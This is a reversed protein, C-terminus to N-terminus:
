GLLKGKMEAPCRIFEASLLYTQGAVSNFVQAYLQEGPQFLGGKNPANYGVGVQQGLGFVSGAVNTWTWAPATGYTLTVSGYAPVVYLGLTPTITVGNVGVVVDVGGVISFYVPGGSINQYSSGSAGIVPTVAGFGPAGYSTMGDLLQRNTYGGNVDSPTSGRFLIYRGMDTTFDSGVVNARRLLWVDGQEPGAVGDSSGTSGLQITGGTGQATIPPLRASDIGRLQERTVSSFQKTMVDELELRTLVDIPALAAHLRQTTM